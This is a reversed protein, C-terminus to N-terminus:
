LAQKLVSTQRLFQLVAHLQPNSYRCLIHRCLQKFTRKRHLPYITETCHTHTHTHSCTQARYVLNAEARLGHGVSDEQTYSAVCNKKGHTIPYPSNDHCSTLRQECRNKEEKKKIFSSAPHLNVGGVLCVLDSSHLHFQNYILPNESIRLASTEWVFMILLVQSSIDIKRGIQASINCQIQEVVSHLFVGFVQSLWLNSCLLTTCKWKNKPRDETKSREM